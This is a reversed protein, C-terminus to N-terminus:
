SQKGMGKKEKPCILSLVLPLAFPPFTRERAPDAKSTMTKELRLAKSPKKNMKGVTENNVSRLNTHERVLRKRRRRKNLTESDGGARARRKERSYGCRWSEFSLVM